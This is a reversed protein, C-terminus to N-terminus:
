KQGSPEGTHIDVFHYFLGHTGSVVLDDPDNPDDYFSNLTTLVRTYAAEHTIWGREQAACIATLGFGVSAISAVEPETARERILGTAPDAYEWFYQFARRELLDLFQDDSTVQADTDVFILDDFHLTGSPPSVARGSSGQNNEFIITMERMQHWDLTNLTELDVVKEEWESGVGYIPVYAMNWNMDAFRIYFKTDSGVTNGEGKVWFRFEDFISLDHFKGSLWDGDFLHEYYSALSDTQVVNYSLTLAYGSDGHRPATVFSSHLLSYGTCSAPRTATIECWDGRVAIFNNRYDSPDNFSDLTYSVGASATVSIYNSDKLPNRIDPPASLVPKISSGPMDLISLLVFLAATPALAVGIALLRKKMMILRVRQEILPRISNMQRRALV